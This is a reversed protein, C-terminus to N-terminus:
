PYCTGLIFSFYNKAVFLFSSFDANYIVKEGLRLDWVFVNECGGVAVYRGEQGQYVIFAINSNSSTIVNFTDLPAYRLYQKTIGM